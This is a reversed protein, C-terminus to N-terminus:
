AEASESADSRAFSVCSDCIPSRAGASGEHSIRPGEIWWGCETLYVAGLEAAQLLAGGEVLHWARDRRLHLQERGSWPALVSHWTGSASARGREDARDCLSCYQKPDVTPQIRRSGTDVFEESNWRHCASLFRRRGDPLATEDVVLHWLTWAHMYRRPWSRDRLRGTLRSDDAAHDEWDLDRWAPELRDLVTQIDEQIRPTGADPLGSVLARVIKEKKAGASYSRSLVRVGFRGLGTQRLWSRSEVGAVADDCCDAIPDLYGHLEDADAAREALDMLRALEKNMALQGGEHRSAGLAALRVGLAELRDRGELQPSGM